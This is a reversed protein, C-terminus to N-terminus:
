SLGRQVLVEAAEGEVAGHNLNTSGLLGDGDADEGEDGAAAAEGTGGDTAGLLNGVHELKADVLVDLRPDLQAGHLVGVLGNDVELGTQRTEAVHQGVLLLSVRKNGKYKQHTPSFAVCYFRILAQLLM